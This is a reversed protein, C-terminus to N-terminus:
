ARAPSRPTPQAAVTPQQLTLFTHVSVFLLMLWLGPERRRDILLLSFAAFALPFLLQLDVTNNTTRKIYLNVAKVGDVLAAAARSRRALMTLDSEVYRAIQTADELKPFAMSLLRNEEQFAKQLREEIERDNKDYRVIVSGTVPNTEVQHVGDMDSVLDRVQLFFARDGKAAPVAFRLRGPLRHVVHCEHPM